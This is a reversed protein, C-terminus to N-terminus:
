NWEPRTRYPQSRASVLGYGKKCPPYSIINMAITPPITLTHMKDFSMSIFCM